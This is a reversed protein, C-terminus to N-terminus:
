RNQINHVGASVLMGASGFNAIRCARAVWPHKRGWKKVVLIEALTIGAFWGAKNYASRTTFRGKDALFGNREVRQWSTYSDFGSAAGHAAMSIALGRWEPQPPAAEQARLAGVAMVSAMLAAMFLRNVKTQM